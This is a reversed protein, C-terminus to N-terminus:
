WLFSPLFISASFVGGSLYLLQKHVLIGEKLKKRHMHVTKERFNLVHAANVTGLGIKMWCYIM